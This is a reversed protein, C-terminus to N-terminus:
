SDTALREDDSQYNEFKYGIVKINCGLAAVDVLESSTHSTKMLSSESGHKGNWSAVTLVSYPKTTDTSLSAPYVLETNSDTEIFDTPTKLVRGDNGAASNGAAAVILIDERDENSFQADWQQWFREPLGLSLNVLRFSQEQKLGVLFEKFGGQRISADNGSGKYIAYPVIKINPSLTHGRSVVPLQPKESIGGLLISAVQNGHLQDSSHTLTLSHAKIFRLKRNPYAIATHMPFYESELSRIYIGVDGSYINITKTKEELKEENDIIKKHISPHSFNTFKNGMEDCADEDQWIKIKEQIREKSYVANDIMKVTPKSPLSINLVPDPFIIIQGTQLKKFSLNPNLEQIHNLFVNTNNCSNLKICEDESYYDWLNLKRYNRKYELDFFDLSGDYKLLRYSTHLDCDPLNLIM